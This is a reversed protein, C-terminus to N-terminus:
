QQPPAPQASESQVSSSLNTEVAILVILTQRECECRARVRTRLGQMALIDEITRAAESSAAAWQVSGAALRAATEEISIPRQMVGLYLQFTFPTDVFCGQEAMLASRQQDKAFWRICETSRVLPSAAEIRHYYYYSQTLSIVILIGAVIHPARVRFRDLWYVFEGGAFVMAPALIPALLDGRQHQTISFIALGVVFWSLIFRDFLRSEGNELFSRLRRWMGVVALVSWPLMRHLFYLTPKPLRKWLPDANEIHAAHTFLERRLLKDTVADGLSFYAAAFWGLVLALYLVVGFGHEIFVSRKKIEARRPERFVALLGAGGLVLGLPGKTLTALTASLWFWIWGQGTNWSRWATLATLAVTFAFLADTRLLIFLRMGLPSLILLLASFLAIREDHHRKVWFFVLFALSTWALASPLFLTTPSVGGALKALIAGLWTLLPPKSTVDGLWDTQCIWNGNVVVDLIYAAPREQDKDLFNHPASARVMFLGIAALAIWLAPLCTNSGASKSQIKEFM